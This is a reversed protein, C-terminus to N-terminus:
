FRNDFDSIYQQIYHYIEVTNTPYQTNEFLPGDCIGFMQTLLFNNLAQDISDLCIDTSVGSAINRIRAHAQQWRQYGQNRAMFDRWVHALSYDPTFTHDLFEALERLRMYLQHLDYLDSMSIEYIKAQPVYQYQPSYEPYHYGSDNFKSYFDQRLLVPNERVHEPIQLLKEEIPIDGARYLVNIQYCVKELISDVKIRIVRDVDKIPRNFETYHDGFVKKSARYNVDTKTNHITGATRMLNNIKPGQFIYTNIIYELFHGHSGCYFDLAIM